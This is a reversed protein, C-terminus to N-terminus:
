DRCFRGARRLDSGAEPEDIECLVGLLYRRLVRTNEKSYSDFGTADFGTGLCQSEVPRNRRSTMRMADLNIPTIASIAPTTPKWLVLRGM